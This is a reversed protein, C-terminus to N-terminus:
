YRIENQFGPFTKSPYVLVSVPAMILGSGSDGRCGSTTKPPLTCLRGEPSSIAEALAMDAEDPNEQNLRTVTKSCEELTIFEQITYQLLDPLMRGATMPVTNGWGGLALSYGSKLPIKDNIM